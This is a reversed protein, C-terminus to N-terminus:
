IQIIIDEHPYNAMEDGAESWGLSQKVCSYTSLNHAILILHHLKFWNIINQKM